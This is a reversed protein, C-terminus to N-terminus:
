YNIKQNNLNLNEYTSNSSNKWYVKYKVTGDTTSVYNAAKTIKTINVDKASSTSGGNASSFHAKIHVKAIETDNWDNGVFNMYVQVYKSNTPKITFPETMNDAKATQPSLTLFLAMLPVLLSFLKKM